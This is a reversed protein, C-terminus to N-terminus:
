AEDWKEVVRALISNPNKLDEDIKKKTGNFFLLGTKDKMNSFPITNIGFTEIYKMVVKHSKPIRVGGAEAFLGKDFSTSSLTRCRGGARNSGELVIVNVGSKKLERAAALGALGAGIVVVSTSSVSSANKPVLRGDIMAMYAGIEGSSIIPEIPPNFM